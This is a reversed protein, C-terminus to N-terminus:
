QLANLSNKIVAKLYKPNHVGWSGDSSAWKYNYLVAIDKAPYTGPIALDHLYAGHSTTTDILKKEVLKLRLETLLGKVDTQVNKYNFNKLDPHCSACAAMYSANAGYQPYSMKMTHGGAVAAYPEAMHCDVCSNKIVNQHVFTKSYTEPGEIEIAGTAAFMDAATSYHPGWYKSAIKFTASADKIKEASLDAPIAAYSQHCSACVASKGFNFTAGSGRFKVEGTTTLSWDEESYKDHIKHCTRCTQGTPNAIDKEVTLNGTKLFEHFGDNTHCVVCNKENHTLLSNDSHMSNAWQIQKAVLVSSSNHCTGCQEQGNAGNAGDKGDKGSPGECGIMFFSMSVLAMTVLLTVFKTSFTNM